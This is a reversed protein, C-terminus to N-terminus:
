EDEDDSEKRKERAEKHESFTKPKMRDLVKRADEDEEPLKEHLRELRQRLEAVMIVVMREMQEETLDYVGEFLYGSLMARANEFSGMTLLENEVISFYKAPFTEEGQKDLFEQDLEKGSKKTEPEETKTKAAKKVAKKKPKQPEIIENKAM